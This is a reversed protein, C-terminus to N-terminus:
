MPPPRRRRPALSSLVADIAVNEFPYGVVFWLVKWHVVRTLIVLYVSVHIALLALIVLWFSPRRIFRKHARIAYGFLISTAGILGLYKGLSEGSTADSKFGYWVVGFCFVLGVASYVAFDRVRKYAAQTM